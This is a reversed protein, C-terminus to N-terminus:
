CELCYYDYTKKTMTDITGEKTNLYQLTDCLIIRLAEDLDLYATKRIVPLNVAHKRMPEIYDAIFVIKELESMGPRGTTHYCIANLIEKDCVGYKEKALVKGAKAHLLPSNKEKEAESLEMKEKKCLDMQTKYNECKACDHLLGALLSKEIDEGHVMALSAATYAVGLTHEFRKTDLEKELINRIRKREDTKM